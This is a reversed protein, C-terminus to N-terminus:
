VMIIMFLQAPYSASWKIQFFYFTPEEHGNGQNVIIGSKFWRNGQEKSYASTLMDVAVKRQQFLM